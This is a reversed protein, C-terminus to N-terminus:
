LDARGNGGPADIARCSEGAVNQGPYLVTLRHVMNSLERVNGPWDYRQM